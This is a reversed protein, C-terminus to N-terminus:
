WRRRWMVWIWLVMVVGLCGLLFIEGFLWIASDDVHDGSPGAHVKFRLPLFPVVISTHVMDGESAWHYLCPPRMYWEGEVGSVNIQAAGRVDVGHHDVATYCAPVEMFDQDVIAVLSINDEQVGEIVHAYAM